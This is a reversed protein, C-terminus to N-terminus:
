PGFVAVASNLLFDRHADIDSLTWAQKDGIQKTMEVATQVYIHKKNVFPENGGLTNQGPDMITLNGLSNKVPELDPEVDGPDARRPYVHEISTGSFAFVRSKDYCSPPGQAGDKIWQYYYEITMFFYKLPKNGGGTEQYELAKLGNRFHEDPAEADIM